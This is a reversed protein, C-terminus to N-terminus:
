RSEKAHEAFFEGIADIEGLGQFIVETEYGDKELVSKWSDEKEGALDNRAHDGAVILLPMMTVKRIRKRRFRGRIYDLDPFGEVTGVFTNDYNLDRLVHEMKCYTSDASHTTGHGMLLFAEDEPLPHAIEQMVIHAVEEYDEPTTLLPRGVRFSDFDDKYPTIMDLMKEYELGPIIHTPQCIVERCGEAVLKEFVEEPSNITINKTRALKRIIMKSTFARFFDYDPFAKKVKEEVNTIAPFAIDVSTGFSVVVVAKKNM